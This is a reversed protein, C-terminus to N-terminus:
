ATGLQCLRRWSGLDALATADQHRLISRAVEPSYRWHLRAAVEALQDPPLNLYGPQPRAENRM